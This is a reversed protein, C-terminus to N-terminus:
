REQLLATSNRIKLQIPAIIHPNNLTHGHILALTNEAARKAMANPNQHITTLGFKQAFTSDDFGILSLDKPINIGIQQFRFMFPIAFSDQHFFIATPRPNQLFINSITADFMDNRTSVALITEHLNHFPQTQKLQRCAEKFGSIRKASSFHLQSNFDEYVYLINRHGLNVLHQVALFAGQTDDIGISSSLGHSSICNIGIIPVNIRALQETERQSIDFSSVIVADTNGRVPLEEFFQKRQKFGEIPYIILDYGADHFVENLGEIISATFWEIKYSGVLLAIRFSKGSKLVGATRSIIFDLQQAAQLVKARTRPAVKEPHAFSRSVTAISVGAAQAVDNISSRAM